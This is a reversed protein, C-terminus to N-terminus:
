ISGLIVWMKSSKVWLVFTWGELFFTEVENEWFFRSPIPGKPSGLESAWCRWSHHNENQKTSGKPQSSPITPPNNSYPAYASPSGFNESSINTLKQLGCFIPFISLFVQLDSLNIQNLEWLIWPVPMNLPYIFWVHIRHSQKYALHIVNELPSKSLSVTKWFSLKRGLTRTFCSSNNSINSLIQQISLSFSVRFISM